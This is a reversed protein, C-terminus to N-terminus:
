DGVDPVTVRHLAGSPQIVTDCNIWVVEVGPLAAEYASRVQQRMDAIAQASHRGDPSYSPVLVAGGGDPGANHVSNLYTKYIVQRPAYNQIAGDLTTRSNERTMSVGTWTVLGIWAVTLIKTRTQIFM